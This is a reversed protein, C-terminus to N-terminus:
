RKCTGATNTHQPKPPPGYVSKTDSEVSSLVDPSKQSGFFLRHLKELIGGPYVEYEEPEPPPPPLPISKKSQEQIIPKTFEFDSELVRGSISLGIVKGHSVEAKIEGQANYGSAMRLVSLAKTFLKIAKEDTM